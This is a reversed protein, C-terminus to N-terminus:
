SLSGAAFRDWRLCSFPWATGVVERPRSGAASLEEAAVPTHHPKKATQRAQCKSPSLEIKPQEMKHRNVSWAFHGLPDQIVSPVAHGTFCFPSRCVRDRRASHKERDKDSGASVRGGGGGGHGCGGSGGARPMSRVSLCVSLFVLSNENLLQRSFNGDCLSTVILMKLSLTLIFMILFLYSIKKLLTSYSKRHLIM